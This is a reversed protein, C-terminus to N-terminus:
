YHNGYKNLVQGNICFGKIYGFVKNILKPQCQELNMFITKSLFNSCNRDSYFVVTIEPPATGCIAPTCLQLETEVQNGGIFTWNSGTTCWAGGEFPM